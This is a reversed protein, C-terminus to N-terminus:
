VKCIRISEKLSAIPDKLPSYEHSVFGNFGADAIAQIIPRYNL